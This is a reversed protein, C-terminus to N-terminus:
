LASPPVGRGKLVTGPNDTLWLTATFQIILPFDTHFLKFQHAADQFHVACFPYFAQVFHSQMTSADTGDREISCPM